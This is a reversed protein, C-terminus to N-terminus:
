QNMCIRPLSPILDISLLIKSSLTRSFRTTTCAHTFLLSNVIVKCLRIRPQPQRTPSRTGHALSGYVNAPPTSQDSTRTLYERSLASQWKGRSNPISDRPPSGWRQRRIHTQSHTPVTGSCLHPPITHPLYPKRIWHCRHCVRAAKIRRAACWLDRFGAVTADTAGLSVWQGLFPLLSLSRTVVGNNLPNFRGGRPVRNPRAAWQDSLRRLHVTWRRVPCGHTFNVQSNHTIQWVPQWDVMATIEISANRRGAAFTRTLGGTKEFM